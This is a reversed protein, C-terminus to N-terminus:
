ILEFEHIPKKFMVYRYIYPWGVIVTMSTSFIVLLKATRKFEQKAWLLPSSKYTSNKTHTSYFQIRSKLASSKLTSRSIASFM